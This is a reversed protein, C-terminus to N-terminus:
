AADLEAPGEQTDDTTNILKMSADSFYAREAVQWEDHVDLLVAGVLRIIAADDPFIGM